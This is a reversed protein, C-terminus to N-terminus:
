QQAAEAEASMAVGAAALVIAAIDPKKWGEPKLIKGDERRTVAGTVPDVKAMNSRHVEDWLAQMPLGLTEGYETIVKILDILGDAVEVLDGAARADVTEKFEEEILKWQMAETPVDLSPRTPFPKGCAHMFELNDTFPNGNM